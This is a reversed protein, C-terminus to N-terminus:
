VEGAYIEGSYHWAAAMNLLLTDLDALIQEMANAEEWTLREMDAPAAPTASFVALASRIAAVNARYEEIVPAAISEDDERWETTMTGDLHNVLVPVYPSTYGAELLRDSIDKLAAVVRNFDTYDYKGKDTANIADMVTRDLILTSYDFM